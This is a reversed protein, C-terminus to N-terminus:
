NVTRMCCSGSEGVAVSCVKKGKERSKSTVSDGRRFGLSFGHIAQVFCEHLFHKLRLDFRGFVKKM